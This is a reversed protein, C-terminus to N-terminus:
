WITFSHTEPTDSLSEHIERAVSDRAIASEQEGISFRGCNDSQQGFQFWRKVLQM